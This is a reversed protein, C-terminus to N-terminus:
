SLNHGLCFCISSNPFKFRGDKDGLQRLGDGSTGVEASDGSVLDVAATLGGQGSKLSGQVLDAAIDVGLHDHFLKRRLVCSILELVAGDDPKIDSLLRIDIDITLGHAGPGRVLDPLVGLEPGDGPVDDLLPLELEELSDLLPELRVSILELNNIHVLLLGLNLDLLELTERLGDLTELLLEGAQHM